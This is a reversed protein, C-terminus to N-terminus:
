KVFWFYLYKVVKNSLSSTNPRFKFLDLFFIYVEDRERAVSKPKGVGTKSGLRKEHKPTM